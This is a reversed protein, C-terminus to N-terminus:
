YKYVILIYKIGEIDGLLEDVRDQSIEGLACMGMPLRKYKFKGFETAIKKMDQSDTSLSVTYYGMNIDLTTAYQVGELKHIKKVIGRIPYMNRVQKQDIKHYDIIFRVNGETKPIIFISTGYKEQQVPTLVGIKVLLKLEKCFIEKNIKTVLYYKSYFYVLCIGPRELAWQIHSTIESVHLVYTHPLNYYLNLIYSIFIVHLDINQSSSGVRVM